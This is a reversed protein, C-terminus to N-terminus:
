LVQLRPEARLPAGVHIMRGMKCSAFLSLSPNAQDWTVCSALPVALLHGRIPQSWIGSRHDKGSVGCPGMSWAQNKPPFSVPVRPWFLLVFASHM